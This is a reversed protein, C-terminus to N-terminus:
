EILFMFYVYLIASEVRPAVRQEYSILKIVLEHTNSENSLMGAWTCRWWEDHLYKILYLCIFLVTKDRDSHNTATSLSSNCLGRLLIVYLTHACPCVFCSVHRVILQMSSGGATHVLSTVSLSLAAQADNIYLTQYIIELDTCFGSQQPSILCSQSSSWVM